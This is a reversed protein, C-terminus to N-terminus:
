GHVTAWGRVRLQLAGTMGAVEGSSRPTVPGGTM